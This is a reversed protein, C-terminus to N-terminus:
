YESSPEASKRARSPRDGSMKMEDDTQQVATTIAQSVRGGALGPKHWPAEEGASLCGACWAPALALVLLLPRM